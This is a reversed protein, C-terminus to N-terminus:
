EIIPLLDLTTALDNEIEDRNDKAPAITAKGPSREIYDQLMSWDFEDIKGAKYRKELETPSVLSKEMGAEGVISQVAQEDTWKRNGKKGNVLKHRSMKAGEDNMRFFMQWKVAKIWANVLPIMEYREELAENTLEVLRLEWDETQPVLAKSADVTTGAIANLSAKELAPCMVKAKCYECQKKGPFLFRKIWDDRGRKSGLCVEATEARRIGLIAMSKFSRLYEPTCNWTNVAGSLGAQEQYIAFDIREIASADLMVGDFTELVGLAYIMMPPHGLMGTEEEEGEAYVPKGWPFKRDAILISKGDARILGFDLTGGLGPYGLANEYTIKQEILVVDGPQKISLAWAIYNRVSEIESSSLERQLERLEDNPVVNTESVELFIQAMRHQRSGATAYESQEDKMGNSLAVSGPCLLWRPSASPRYSEATSM